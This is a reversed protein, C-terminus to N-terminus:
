AAYAAQLNKVKVIVSGYTADELVVLDGAEAVVKGDVSLPASMVACKPFIIEVQYKHPDDYVAGECLLYVGFTDNDSISQGLIFDRFERDLKLTQERGGRFVRSAYAGGAGPTFEVEFNNKFSWEISRVEAALTKGGAFASGTWKGGTKVTLEAVRLPTEAVRAPFAAWAAEDPVYLIKFAIDTGTVGPATITIVAPTAASVESFAVETWVGAALECRIRHVSNLRAAASAGEVANAALTLSTVAPDATVTEETVNDTVKGTGKLDLTLAAWKDKEFKATLADVAMGAFRRKLVDGFKQALTFTPNSRSGDLDGSVPTITHQYGTGAAAAASSGLAFACGFAFHQPQAKSFVLSGEALAGLDYVTDPEEHGTMEGGNHERRPTLNIVSEIDALLSVGMTQETNLATEKAAASVAVQNNTARIGRM